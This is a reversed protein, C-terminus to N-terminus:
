HGIRTKLAPKFKQDTTSSKYVFSEVDILDEVSRIFVPPPTKIPPDNTNVTQANTATTDNLQNDNLNDMQNSDQDENSALADFRNVSTFIKKKKNLNVSVQLTQSLVLLVPSTKKLNLNKNYPGDKM